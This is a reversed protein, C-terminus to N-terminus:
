WTGNTSKKDRDGDEIIWVKKSEDFYLTCQIKSYINSDIVIKCSKDRGITIKSDKPSFEYKIPPNKKAFCMEISIKQSFKFNLYKLDHNPEM